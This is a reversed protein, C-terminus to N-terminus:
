EICRARVEFWSGAVPNSVRAAILNAGPQVFASIDVPPVTVREVCNANENVCGEQQWDGGWHGVFDGNVYIWIGDDSQLDLHLVPAPDPLDFWAVYSKDHLAPINQGPLQVTAYDVIDHGPDWFPLGAPDTWDAAQTYPPSGWWDWQDDFGTCPVTQVPTTTTGPTTTGPTTPTGPTSTATTETGTAGVSKEQNALEYDSCGAVLLALAPVSLRHM